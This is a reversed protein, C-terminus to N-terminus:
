AAIGAKANRSKPSNQADVLDDALRFDHFIFSPFRLRVDRTAM